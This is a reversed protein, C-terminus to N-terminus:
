GSPAEGEEVDAEEWARAVDRDREEEEEMRDLPDDEIRVREQPVHEDDGTM